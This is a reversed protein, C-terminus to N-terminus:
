RSFVGAQRPVAQGYIKPTHSSLWVAVATAQKLESLQVSLKGAQISVGAQVPLLCRHAGPGELNQDTCSREAPHVFSFGPGQFCLHQVLILKEQWLIASKPITQM